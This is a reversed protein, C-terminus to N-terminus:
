RTAITKKAKKREGWVAEKSGPKKCGHVYYGDPLRKTFKKSGSTKIYDLFAKPM